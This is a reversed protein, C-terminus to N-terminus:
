RNIREGNGIAPLHQHSFQNHPLLFRKKMEKPKSTDLDLLTQTM